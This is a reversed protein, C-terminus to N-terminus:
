SYTQDEVLFSLISEAVAHASTQPASHNAHILVDRASLRHPTATIWDESGWIFLAEIQRPFTFPRAGCDPMSRLTEKLIEVPQSTIEAYWANV